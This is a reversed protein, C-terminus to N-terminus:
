LRIWHNGSDPQRSSTDRHIYRFQQHRVHMKILQVNNNVTDSMDFDLDDQLILSSAQLRGISNRMGVTLNLTRRM